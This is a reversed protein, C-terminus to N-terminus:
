QLSSAQLMELHVGEWLALLIHENHVVIGLFSVM